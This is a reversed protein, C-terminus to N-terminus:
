RQNERIDCKFNNDMSYDDDTEEDMELDVPSISSERLSSYSESEESDEESEIKMAKNKQQGTNLKKLSRKVAKAIAKREEVKKKFKKRHKEGLENKGPTYLCLRTQTSNLNKPISVTHIHGAFSHYGSEGLLSLLIDKEIIHDLNSKM